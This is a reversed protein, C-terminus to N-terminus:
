VILSCTCKPKVAPLSLAITNHSMEPCFSPSGCIVLCMTCCVLHLDDCRYRLALEVPLVPNGQNVSSKGHMDTAGLHMWPCVAQQIDCRILFPTVQTAIALAVAPLLLRIKCALQKMQYTFSAYVDQWGQMTQLIALKLTDERDGQQRVQPGQM